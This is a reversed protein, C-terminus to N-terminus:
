EWVTPVGDVFHWYTDATEPDTESYYYRTANTLLQNTTGISIGEWVANDAGGYFITTLNSCSQFAGNGISMM